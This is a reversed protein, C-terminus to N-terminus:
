IDQKYFDAAWSTLWPEVSEMLEDDSVFKKCSLFRNTHLFLRFNQVQLSKKSNLLEVSVVLQLFAKLVIENVPRCVEVFLAYFPM